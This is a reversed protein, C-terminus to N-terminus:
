CLAWANVNRSQQRGWVVKKVIKLFQFINWKCFPWIEKNWSVLLPIPCQNLSLSRPFCVWTVAAKHSNPWSSPVLYLKGLDPLVISDEALSLPCKSNTNYSKQKERLQDSHFVAWTGAAQVECSNRPQAFVKNVVLVYSKKTFLSGFLWYIADRWTDPAKVGVAKLCKLNGLDVPFMEYLISCSGAELCLNRNSAGACTNM